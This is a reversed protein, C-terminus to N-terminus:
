CAAPPIWTITSESNATRRVKTRTRGRFSFPAVSAAGTLAGWLEVCRRIDSAHWFNDPCAQQTVELCYWVRQTRNFVCTPSTLHEDGLCDIGTDAARPHPRYFRLSVPLRTILFERVPGFFAKTKENRLSLNLIKFINQVSDLKFDLTFPRVDKGEYWDAGCSERFPGESFTKRFNIKFGLYGLLSVLPEFVSKRVIIDDGYVLFDKGPRGAGVASAAAAFILSELPFCFGNGMSCFKNYRRSVGKLNFEPSRISNLFSFWDDPLVERVMEISISDSASSLDITCFPDEDGPMSGLYAFHQNPQQDSLDIGIRKLNQRMVVDTGKQLYGNILPEIAITRHVLATKPVFTINNHKVITTKRHYRERELAYDGDGSSFGAHEPILVERLHCNNNMAIYGITFAGPSVTWTDALLKRANNTSRAVGVSAGPGFAASSYIRDMDPSHGIAYAIFHRMQNIAYENVGRSCTRRAKFRQNVRHCHHEAALFKEIATGEPDAKILKGWPYKRVLAALQNKVFHEHHSDYKQSVWSDSVALLDDWDRAKVANLFPSLDLEGHHHRCLTTLISAFAQLDQHQLRRDQEQLLKAYRHNKV